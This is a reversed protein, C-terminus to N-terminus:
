LEDFQAPAMPSEDVIDVVQQRRVPGVEEGVRVTLHAGPLETHLRRLREDLESIEASRGALELAGATVDLRVQVSQEDDPENFQFLLEDPRALGVSERARREALRPDDRLALIQRELERNRDALEDNQAQLEHLEGELQELRDVNPHSMIFYVLGCVVTAFILIVALRM